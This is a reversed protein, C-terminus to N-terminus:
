LGFRTIVRQPLNKSYSFLWDPVPGRYYGLFHVPLFRERGQEDLSNNPNVKLRRLCSALDVDDIGSNSCFTKNTVLQQGLRLFSEQSLVYGCGGSHFGNEVTIKFDHGYTVPSSSSKTKLFGELNDMNVYADDDSIYYWEYHKIHKYIYEVASFVKDTLNGYKETILGQPQLVRFPKRIESHVSFTTSFNYKENKFEDPIVTVFRYDECKSVWINYTTLTKNNALSGPTTKVLCFIGNKNIEFKTQNLNPSALLINDFYSVKNVSNFYLLLVTLTTILFFLFIRLNLKNM